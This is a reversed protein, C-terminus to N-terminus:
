DLELAIRVLLGLADGAGGDRSRGLEEPPIAGKGACGAFMRYRLRDPCGKGTALLHRAGLAIQHYTM